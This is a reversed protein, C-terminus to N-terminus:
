ANFHVERWLDVSPRAPSEEGMASVPGVLVGDKYAYLFGTQPDRLFEIM